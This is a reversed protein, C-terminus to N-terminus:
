KTTTNGGPDLITRMKRFTNLKSYVLASRQIFQTEAIPMLTYKRQKVNGRTLSPQM